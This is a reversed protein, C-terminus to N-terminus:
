TPATTACGCRPRREGAARRRRSAVPHQPGRGVPEAAGVVDEHERHVSQGPRDVQRRRRRPALDRHRQRGPGRRGPTRRRRRRRGVPGGCGVVHRDRRLVALDARDSYGSASTRTWIATANGAPDAVLQLSTGTSRGPRHTRAGRECGSVLWRRDHLTRVPRCAGHPDGSRGAPELDRHRQRRRRRRSSAGAVRRDRRRRRADRRVVVIGTASTTAARRSVRTRGRSSGTGPPPSTAPRTSPCSPDVPTRVQTPSTPSRASWNGSGVNYRRVQVIYDGSVLGRWAAVANGAADVEVTPELANQAGSLETVASWTGATSDYRRAEVVNTTGGDTSRLWIAVADGDPSSAVQPVTAVGGAASLDTPESWVDAASTTAIPTAVAAVCSAALAVAVTLAGRRRARDPPNDRHQLM